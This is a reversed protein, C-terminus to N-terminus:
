DLSVIYKILQELGEPTQYKMVVEWNYTQKLM